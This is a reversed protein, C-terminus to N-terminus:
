ATKGYGNEKLYRVHDWVSCVARAYRRASDLSRRRAVCVPSIDGDSTVTWATVMYKPVGDPAKSQREVTVGPAALHPNSTGFFRVTDASYYNKAHESTKSRRVLEDFSRVDLLAPVSDQWSFLDTLDIYADQETPSLFEPVNMTTM